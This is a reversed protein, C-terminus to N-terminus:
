PCSGLISLSAQHIFLVELILMLNPECTVGSEMSYGVFKVPSNKMRDRDVLFQTPRGLGDLINIITNVLIGSEM